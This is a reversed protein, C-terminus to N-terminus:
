DLDVNLSEFSRDERTRSLQEHILVRNDNKFVVLIPPALGPMAKRFYTREQRRDAVVSQEHDSPMAQPRQGADNGPECIQVGGRVSGRIPRPGRRPRRGARFTSYADSRSGTQRSLLYDSHWLRSARSQDACESLDHETGVAIMGTRARSIM